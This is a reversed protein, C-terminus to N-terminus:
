WVHGGLAAVGLVVTASWAASALLTCIIFTVASVRLAGSAVYVPLRTGPIFRSVVIAVAAGGNLRGALRQLETPPVRRDVWRGVPGISRALRGLGFLGLDGIWIGLGVWLIAEFATLAHAAVLVGASITSADESVLTGAALALGIATVGGGRAADQDAFEDHHEVGAV